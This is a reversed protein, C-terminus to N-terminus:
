PGPRLRPLDTERDHEKHFPRRPGRIPLLHAISNAHYELLPRGRPLVVLTEGDMVVLRRLRLMRWARDWIDLIRAGGRVVKANVARLRDRLEDM